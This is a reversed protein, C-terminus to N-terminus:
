ASASSSPGGGRSFQLRGDKATVFGKSGAHGDHLFSFDLASRPAITTSPPLKLWDDVDDEVHFPTWSTLEPNPSSVVEVDDIRISGLGDTKEFQVVARHAGQPVRVVAQQDRWDFSGAWQFAPVGGGGALPEGAPDLFYFSAVAGGGGRLGQAKASLSIQLSTVGDVPLALGTLVRAGSKSLEVASASDHGPFTRHAEGNVVWYTPAPDGLEFDGNVVLNTAETPRRPILDFTLGDVDLTGSAGLLGVSMIADHTGPPVAIRKAVRTWRDGVAHTWPGMLGRSLTRLEDGLFDIMLSPEEGMREGHQVNKSRIWLGIVIAETERGDIGFARSLRAPRGRHLCEFRIFRPGSAGGTTQIVADRANYWGDPVGDANADTELDDRAPPPTRVIEPASQARCSPATAPVLVSALGLVTLVLSTYRTM